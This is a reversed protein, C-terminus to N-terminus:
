ALRSAPRQGLGCAPAPAPPVCLPVGPVRWDVSERAPRCPVWGGVQAAAEALYERLQQGSHAFSSLAGLVAGSHQAAVLQRELLAKPMGVLPLVAAAGAGGEPGARAVAAGPLPVSASRHAAPAKGSGDLPISISASTNSDTPSPRQFTEGSGKEFAARLATALAAGEARLCHAARLRAVAALRQALLTIARTILAPGEARAANHACSDLLSATQSYM